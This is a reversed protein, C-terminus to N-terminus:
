VVGIWLNLTILSILTSYVIVHSAFITDLDFQLALVLATLMSPMASELVTVKYPVDSLGLVRSLILALFPFLLLKLTIGSFIGLTSRNNKQPKSFSLGLLFMMLPTTAKGLISLSDILFDPLKYPSFIFGLILGWLPPNNLVKKVIFNFNIKQASLLSILIIGITYIFLCMGLQDYIIAVTLGQNGYLKEMIPYGLFTVNGGISVLFLSGITKKNLNLVFGILLALIGIVISVIWEVLVVKDLSIQPPNSYISYFVLAPLSFTYVFKSFIERDEERFIKYKKSIFGLLSILILTILIKSM